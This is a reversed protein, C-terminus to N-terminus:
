FDIADRQASPIRNPWLFHRIRARELRQALLNFIVAAVIGTQEVLKEGLDAPICEISHDILAFGGAFADADAQRHEDLLAPETRGVPYFDRDVRGAQDVHQGAAGREPLPELGYHRLHGGVRKADIIPAAADDVTLGVADSEANARM